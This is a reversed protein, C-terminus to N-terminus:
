RVVKKYYRVFLLIGFHGVTLFFSPFTVPFVRQRNRSLRTPSRPPFFLRTQASVVAQPRLAHSLFPSVM